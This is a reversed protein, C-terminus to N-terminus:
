YGKTRDVVGVLPKESAFRALNEVFFRVIDEPRSHAATHGTVVVNPVSWAPHDPPLPEPDTVDLVALGLQGSRAADIVDSMVVTSGRGVNVFSAGRNLIGFLRRDILARTEDTAPLVAVLHDLGKAFSGIDDISHMRDFMPDAAASRRCGVVKMGFARGVRAIATGISGAGLVGLSSGAIVRPLTEDWSRTAFREPVRQCRGLLYAFVFEAIQRGFVGPLGTVTASEPVQSWDIADVGAWTSQIWRVGSLDLSSVLHPDALVVEAGSEVVECGYGELLRTYEDGRRSAVAVLTM